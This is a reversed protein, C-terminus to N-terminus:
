NILSTAGSKFATAVAGSPTTSPSSFLFPLTMATCHCGSINCRLESTANIFLKNLNTTSLAFYPLLYIFSFAPSLNPKQDITSNAILAMIPEPIKKVGPLTTCCAPLLAKTTYKIAAIKAAIRAMENAAAEFYTM